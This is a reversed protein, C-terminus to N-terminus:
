NIEQMQSRLLTRPFHSPHIDYSCSPLPVMQKHAEDPKRITIKLGLCVFTSAVGIFLLIAATSYDACHRMLDVKHTQVVCSWRARM